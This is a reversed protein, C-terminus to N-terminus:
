HKIKKRLRSIAQLQAAAQAFSATATAIETESLKSEMSKAAKSQAEVASAEDIDEARLITDALITVVDPQVELIGGSVYLVQELGEVGSLVPVFEVVGPKIPSLLATHGPYLGLEGLAGACIVHAVEGSFKTEALSVIELRMTKVSM